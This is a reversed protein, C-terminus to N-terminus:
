SGEEEEDDNVTWTAGCSCGVLHGTEGDPGIPWSALVQRHHDEHGEWPQSV